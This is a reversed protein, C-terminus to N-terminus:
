HRAANAVIADRVYVALGPAVNDYTATFRTRVTVGALSAVQGVSYSM